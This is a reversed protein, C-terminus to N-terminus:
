PPEEDVVDFEVVVGPVVAGDAVVVVGVVVVDDVGGALVVGEAPVLEADLEEM